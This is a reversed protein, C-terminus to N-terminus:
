HLNRPLINLSSISQLAPFLSLTCFEPCSQGGATKTLLNKSLQM